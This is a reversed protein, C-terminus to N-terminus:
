KIQENPFKKSLKYNHNWRWTYYGLCVLASILGIVPTIENKVIYGFGFSGITTIVAVKGLIPHITNLVDAGEAAKEIVEM